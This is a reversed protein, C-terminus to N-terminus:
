RRRYRPRTPQLQFVTKNHFYNFPKANLGLFSQPTKPLFVRRYNERAPSNYYVTLKDFTVRLAVYNFHQFNTFKFCIHVIRRVVSLVITTRKRTPFIFLWLLVRVIMGLM